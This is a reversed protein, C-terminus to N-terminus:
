RRSLLGRLSGALHLLAVAGRVLPIRGTPLALLLASLGLGGGMAITPLQPNMRRLRDFGSELKGLPAFRLALAEREAAARAVLEARRAEFSERQASVVEGRPDV